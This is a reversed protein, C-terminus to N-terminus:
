ATTRVLERALAAAGVVGAADGLEGAVIPVEPRHAAGELHGVFAERIPVLLADGLEVLGGSVVIVEPDLINTLGALGLAVAHALEAVIAVGDPEGAQASDGVEVGTVADVEGSARAVVSPAVGARARDRGMRGLAAGSAMAEWHGIEGCACKPGAPDFQWHGVEAAFGHAGRLLRGDAIIGGGVGTGLTVLLGHRHGRLAGHCYEGWAAVNADNDVVLPLDVVEQVLARLPADIFMPLNPAYHVVGDDDIMGAAGIGVAGPEAARVADIGKRIADVLAHLEHPAPLRHEDVITGDADVVGFRLNTGGLDIGVTPAPAGASVRTHDGHQDSPSTSATSRLRSTRM